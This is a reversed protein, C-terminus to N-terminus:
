PKDPKSQRFKEKDAQLKTESLKATIAAEWISWIHIALKNQNQKDKHPEVM